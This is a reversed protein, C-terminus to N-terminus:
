LHNCSVPDFASSPGPETTARVDAETACGQAYVLQKASGGCRGAATRSSLELSPDMELSPACRRRTRSSQRASKARELREVSKTTTLSPRTSSRESSPEDTLGESGRASVPVGVPPPGQQARELLQLRITLDRITADREALAAELRATLSPQPSLLTPSPPRPPVDLTRPPRALELRTNLSPPPTPSSPLPPVDLTRSPRAPEDDKSQDDKSTRQRTTPSQAADKSASDVTDSESTGCGLCCGDFSSPPALMMVGVVVTLNGLIFLPLSAAGGLGSALTGFEQYFIGSAVVGFSIYSAQLLPIIYVADYLVISNNMQRLWFAGMVLVLCLELWFLWDFLLEDPSVVGRAAMDLLEALAKTHVIFFAGGILASSVAYLPPLAAAVWEPPEGSGVTPKYVQDTWGQLRDYVLWGVGSMSFTVAVYSLWVPSRWFAKFDDLVFCQENNPGFVCLTATGLLALATGLWQRISTQAKHVLKAFLINTVFQSSELPVLITSSAFAMAISNGSAGVAFCIWGVVWVKSTWLKQDPSLSKAGMSQLNQGINIAVSSLLGIAIGVRVM